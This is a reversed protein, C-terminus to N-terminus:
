DGAPEAADKTRTFRVPEATAAASLSENNRREILRHALGCLVQQYHIVRASTHILNDFVDRYGNLFVIVVDKETLSSIAPVQMSIGDFSEGRKAKLDWIVSPIIDNVALDSLYTGAVIGAGYAILRGNCNGIVTLVDGARDSNMKCIHDAFARYVVTFGHAKVCDSSIMEPILGLANVEKTFRDIIQEIDTKSHSALLKLRKYVLAYKAISCIGKYYERKDQPAFIDIAKGQTVCRREAYNIADYSTTAATTISNATVIYEYLPKRIHVGKLNTDTLIPTWIQPEQTNAGAVIFNEIIKHTKLLDARFMLVPVSPNIMTGLLFAAFIDVEREVFKEIPNCLNPNFAMGFDWNTRSADCVAFGAEETHDLATALVKTYEKHLLDDCDPMCVYRGGIHKLGNHVAAAVGQNEQDIIIVDYGRGRFRPEYAAIIERTGDTSGDNVLILEINDWEQALISDFMEGIYEAKNYCPMVMSVKSQM